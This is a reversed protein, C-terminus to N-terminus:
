DKTWIPQNCGGVYLKKKDKLLETYYDNWKGPNSVNLMSRRRRSRGKKLGHIREIDIRWRRTTEDDNRGLAMMLRPKFSIITNKKKKKEPLLLFIAIISNISM